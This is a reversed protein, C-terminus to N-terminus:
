RATSRLLQVVITRGDLRARHREEPHPNKKIGDFVYRM